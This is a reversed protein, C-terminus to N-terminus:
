EYSWHKYVYSKGDLILTLLSHDKNIKYGIKIFLDDEPWELACPDHIDLYLFKKDMSVTFYSPCAFGYDEMEFPAMMSGEAGDPILFFFQQNMGTIPTGGDKGDVSEWLEDIPSGSPM